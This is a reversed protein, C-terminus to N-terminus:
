GNYKRRMRLYGLGTAFGAVLLIIASPEPVPVGSVTVMDFRYKCTQAYTSSAKAPTYSTNNAPDFESVVRIKFNPNDNVGSISSLDVEKDNNWDDGKGTFDTGSDIFNVGDISYQLTYFKSSTNSTRIDFAISISEYGATSVDFEAGATKSATGQAPYNTTSYSYNSSAPDTSTDAPDTEISYSNDLVGGVLVLSGSGTSPTTTQNNFNWQTITDAQAAFATALCFAVFAIVILNKKM